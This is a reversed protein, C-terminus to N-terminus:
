IAGATLPLREALRVREPELVTGGKPLDDALDHTAANISLRRRGVDSLPGFRINRRILALTEPLHRFGLKYAQMFSVERTILDPWAFKISPSFAPVPLGEAVATM